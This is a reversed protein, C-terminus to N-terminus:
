KTCFYYAYNISSDLITYEPKFGTNILVDWYEEIKYSTFTIVNQNYFKRKPKFKIDDGEYRVQIIALSKDNLIEYALKTVRIGYQKSPFHQFVATSLFLDCKQDIEEVVKEPYDIDILIPKFELNHITSLENRCQELTPESTDVGYYRKALQSFAIANSGGGSGWELVSDISKDYNLYKIFSKLLNIHNRGIGLWKEEDKWRGEGKWHAHDKIDNLKDSSSWFAQSDTLIKTDSESFYRNNIYEKFNLFISKM